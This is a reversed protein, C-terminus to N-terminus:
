QNGEINNTATTVPRDIITLLDDIDQVVMDALNLQIAEEGTYILGQMTESEVNGRNTTITSTFDTYTKDIEEQVIERDDDTWDRLPSGLLKYKGASFIEFSVGQQKYAEVDNEFISFVGISGINASPHCLNVLLGVHVM